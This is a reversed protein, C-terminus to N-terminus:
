SDEAEEHLDVALVRLAPLVARLAARVAADPRAVHRGGRTRWGVPTVEPDPSM